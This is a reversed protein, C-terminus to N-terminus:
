MAHDLVPTPRDLPPKARSDMYTCPVLWAHTLWLLATPPLALALCGVETTCPNTTKLCQNSSCGYKRCDGDVATNTALGVQLLGGWYEMYFQESSTSCRTFSVTETRKVQTTPNTETLPERLTALDPHLAGTM